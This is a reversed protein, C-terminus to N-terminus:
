TIRRTMILEHLARTARWLCLLLGGWIPAGGGQSTQYLLVLLRNSSRALGSNTGPYHSCLTADDITLSKSCLTHGQLVASDNSEVDVLHCAVVSAVLWSSIYSSVVFCVPLLYYMSTDRDWCQNAIHLQAHAAPDCGM